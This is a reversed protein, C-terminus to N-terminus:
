IYSCNKFINVRLLDDPSTTKQLVVNSADKRGFMGRAFAKASAKTRQSETLM